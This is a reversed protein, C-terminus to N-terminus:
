GSKEKKLIDIVAYAGDYEFSAKTIVKVGKRILEKTKTVLIEPDTSGTIAPVDVFKGFLKCELECIENSSSARDSVSKDVVFEENKNKKLYVSKPCQCYSCYKARNIIM